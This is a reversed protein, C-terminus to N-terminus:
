AIGLGVLLAEFHGEGGFCQFGGIHSAASQLVPLEDSGTTTDGTGSGYGGRQFPNRLHIGMEYINKDLDYPRFGGVGAFEGSELDFLPYYQVGYKAYNSIELALRAKIDDDSFVGTACIFKTVDPSGWLSRALDLDDETWVSFGLRESKLFYERM